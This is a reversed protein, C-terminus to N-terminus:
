EIDLLWKDDIKILKLTASTQDYENYETVYVYAINEDDEEINVKDISHNTFSIGQEGMADIFKEKSINYPNYIMDFVKNWDQYMLSEMFGDAVLSIQKEETIQTSCGTVAIMLLILSLGLIIKKNM